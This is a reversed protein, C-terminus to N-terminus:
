DGMELFLLCHIRCCTSLSACLPGYTASGGVMKGAEALADVIDSDQRPLIWAGVIALM